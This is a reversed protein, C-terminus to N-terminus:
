NPKTKSALFRQQRLLAEGAMLSLNAESADLRGQIMQLQDHLLDLASKSHDMALTSRDKSPVQLCANISDPVYRRVTERLYLSEANVWNGQDTGARILSMCRMISEKIQVLQTVMEPPAQAAMKEMAEDLRALAEPDVLDSTSLSPQVPDHPRSRRGVFAWAVVLSVVLASGGIMFGSRQILGLGVGVAGFTGCLVQFVSTASLSRSTNPSQEAVALRQSLSAGLQRKAHAKSIRQLVSQAVVPQTERSAAHTRRNIPEKAVAYNKNKKLDNM